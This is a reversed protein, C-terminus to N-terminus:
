HSDSDTVPCCDVKSISTWQICAQGARLILAFIEEWKPCCTERGEADYSDFGNM